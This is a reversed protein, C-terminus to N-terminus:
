LLVRVTAVTNPTFVTDLEGMKSALYVAFSNDVVSSLLSSSYSSPDALLRLSQVGPSPTTCLLSRKKKHDGEGGGGPV